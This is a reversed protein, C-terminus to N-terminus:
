RRDEYVIRGNHDLRVAMVKHDKLVPSFKGTLRDKWNFKGMEWVLWQHYSWEKRKKQYSYAALGYM